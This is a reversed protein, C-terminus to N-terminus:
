AENITIRVLADKYPWQTFLLEYEAPMDATIQLKGDDVVHEEGDVLVKCPKPLGGISFTEGVNRLLDTASLPINPRAILEENQVYFDTYIEIGFERDVAIFSEGNAKLVDPLGPPVPDNVTQRIRGTNPEYIIIM